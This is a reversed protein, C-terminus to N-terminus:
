AEVKFYAIMDKLQEAQGSLEEASSALEESAAANQQTINNLEQIASNVQMVGNNEEVSATAIENIMAITQDIDEILGNMQSSSRETVELSKEALLVIEDAAARSNEALKRVESAVVAFGRGHEGARASEVAANLALINTQMAIDTIIKIKENITRISELSEMSAEGVQHISTGIKQAIQKTLQANETNHQINASIEEMTSSIEEVSSAQENSGQTLSQSTSSSQESAASVNQSGELVGAIVQTFKTKMQTLARILDGIEDRLKLYSPEIGAALNGAAFQQALKITRNISSNIYNTILMSIIIGLIVALITFFVSSWIALRKTDEALAKLINTEGNLGAEIDTGAFRLESQFEKVAPSVRMYESLLKEYEDALRETQGSSIKRLKRISSMSEDLLLTDDFVKSRLVSVQIATLLSLQNNNLNIEHLADAVGKMKQLLLNEEDILERVKEVYGIYISLDDKFKKSRSVIEESKVLDIQSDIEMNTSDLMLKANEYYSDNRSFIFIQTNLRADLFYADAWSIHLAGASMNSYQNISRIGIVSVIITLLLVFGFGVNLKTRTKLDKLNM